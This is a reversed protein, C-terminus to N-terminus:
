SFRLGFSGFLGPSGVGVQCFILSGAEHVGDVIKKWAEVHEDSLDLIDKVNRLQPLHHQASHAVGSTHAFESVPSQTPETGDVFIIEAFPSNM